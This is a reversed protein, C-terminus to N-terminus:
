SLSITWLAAGLWTLSITWLAAGLWTLSISWLAAGLWTLSISRLAAGLWTLSISWLAAGLWTLSISWLAAGLWTLSISWLAAGSFEPHRDASDLTPGCDFVLSVLLELLLLVVPLCGLDLYFCLVHTWPFIKMCQKDASAASAWM